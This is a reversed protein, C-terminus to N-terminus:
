MQKADQKQFVQKMLKTIGNEISRLSGSVNSEKNEAISIIKNMGDNIGLAFRTSTLVGGFVFQGTSADEDKGDPFTQNMAIDSSVEIILQISMTFRTKDIRSQKGEVRLIRERVPSELLAHNGKTDGTGIMKATMEAIIYM